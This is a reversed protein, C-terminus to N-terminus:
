QCSAFKTINNWRKNWDYHKSIRRMGSIYSRLNIYISKAQLDPITTCNPNM